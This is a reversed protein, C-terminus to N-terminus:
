REPKIKGQHCMYCQTVPRRTDDFYKPIEDFIPLMKAVIAKPPKTNLSRDTEHCHSCDVGLSASYVSMALGRNKNGAFEAEHDALTTEWARRPLRNPIPKGRHCTACTIEGIGRLPGSNLGEVMAQMRRAFAFTPMSEDAWQGARHCHTCDVGLAASWAQMRATVEQTRSESVPAAGSVVAALVAVALVTRM